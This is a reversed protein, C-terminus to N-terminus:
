LGAGNHRIQSQGETPPNVKIVKIREGREGERFDVAELFSLRSHRGGGMGWLRVLGVPGGAERRGKIDEFM